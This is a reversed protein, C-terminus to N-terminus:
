FLNAPDARNVKRCVLLGSFSCMALALILVLVMRKWTMIMPLNTSLRTLTYLGWALFTAPVFGCLAYLAGQQLVLKNTFTSSYGVAKLTAYDKLHHSIESALIQYLTAAGVACALAVGSSFMIGIPKVKVFYLQEFAELESRKWVLVDAPLTETLKRVVAAEDAGPALKVLGVSVKDLSRGPFTRAFTLDGLIILADSVFGTGHAFTDIINIRRNELEAVMGRHLPQFDQRAKIDMLASDNRTLQAMARAPGPHQFTKERPDVGLVLIEGQFGTHPNRWDGIGVYVPAASSIGPIAQAQILRQRPISGPDGLVIYQPSVLAIDFDLLDYVMTSSRFSADYFGLQMFLLLLAFCVGSLSAATRAPQHTFKLWALPTRM